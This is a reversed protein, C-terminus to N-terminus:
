VIELQQTALKKLQQRNLRDQGAEQAKMLQWLFHNIPTPVHTQEGARVVAGSIADIETTAERDRAPHQEV